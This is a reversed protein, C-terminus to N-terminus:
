FFKLLEPAFRNVSGDNAHCDVIWASCGPNIGARKLWLTQHEYAGGQLYHINRHDMYFAQHYHGALMIKPKDGGELSAILRQGKYSLAYAGGGYGHWLRMITDQTLKVNGEIQDLYVLDGRKAAIILGVDVGADRLFSLDHNGTIFYTTIGEVRPYQAAVYEAQNDAGWVRLEAQQGPYVNIGAVMDGAHYVVTIGEQQFIKYTADLDSLREKTSGLHTDSVFGFRFDTGGFFEQHDHVKSSPYGTKIKGMLDEYSKVKAQLTAIEEGTLRPEASPMITNWRGDPTYYGLGAQNETGGKAM